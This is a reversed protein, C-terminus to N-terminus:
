RTAVNIERKTTDGLLRVSQSKVEGTSQNINFYFEIVIEFTTSDIKNVKSTIDRFFQKYSDLIVELQSTLFTTSNFIAKYDIGSEYYFNAEGRWLLIEQICANVMKYNDDDTYEWEGNNLFDKYFMGM